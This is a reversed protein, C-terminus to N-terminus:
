TGRIRDAAGRLIAVATAHDFQNSIVEISSAEGGHLAHKVHPWTASALRTASRRSLGFAERATREWDTISKIADAAKTFKVSSVRAEPNMPMSVISIEALDVALLLRNGQTDYDSERVSYGISLADIAGSKLLERCEEGLQTRAFEGKCYLGRTDERLDVWRGPVQKPDHAYFMRPLRGEAKATSISKTFAGPLVIDGGLDVNGFTSAYGEFSRADASTATTSFKVELHTRAM